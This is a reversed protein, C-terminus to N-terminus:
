AEAGSDRVQMIKGGSGPFVMQKLGQIKQKKGFADETMGEKKGNGNASYDESEVSPATILIM